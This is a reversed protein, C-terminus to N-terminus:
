EKRRYQKKLLWYVPEWVYLFAYEHNFVEGADIHDALEKSLTTVKSQVLKLVDKDTHLFNRGICESFVYIRASKPIDFMQSFLDEHDEDPTIMITMKTDYPRPKPLGDILESSGYVLTDPDYRIFGMRVAEDSQEVLDVAEQHTMFGFRKLKDILDNYKESRM